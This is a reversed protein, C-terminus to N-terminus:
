GKEPALIESEAPEGRRLERSREAEANIEAGLLLVLASLWLWTLMVIVAALSGWAKNYSGFMSVYVAFLGSIALWAVVTFLAGPTVFRWRPHDVNPGVYLVVAFMALLAFVLIPWQATWWLWRTLSELNAAEGIWRSLHPGLVLLGFALAFAIAALAFMVLATTRQRVFGRSEPRDYARNLARMLATMAGTATWVALVAGVVIMVISGSQNEVVRDLSDGVLSVADAPAVQAFRDMLSDVADTGAVLGFTGLTLLLTAPLSLFLYYALAAAWDTIGDDLAEKGARIVIARYDRLSLDRLGPDALQPEKTEPQPTPGATSAPHTAM